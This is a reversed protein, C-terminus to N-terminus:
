DVQVNGSANVFLRADRRYTMDQLVAELRIQWNGGALEVPATCKGVASCKATLTQDQQEFAPRGIWIQARTPFITEGDRDTIQFALEDDLYSMHSRLGSKAQEQARLLEGNFNQSAVYSNKVVLGTWTGSAMFAMTFNVAIIVGFFSLMCALMHWGTFRFTSVTEPTPNM